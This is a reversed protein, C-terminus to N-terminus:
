GHDRSQHHLAAPRGPFIFWGWSLPRDEFDFFVHELLFAAAPLPQRLLGAEEDNMLTAEIKLEGHKLLSQDGGSFLGQLSTVDM